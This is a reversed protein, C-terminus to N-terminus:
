RMSNGRKRSYSSIPSRIGIVQCACSFPSGQGPQQLRVVGAHAVQGQAVQELQRGVIRSSRPARLLGVGVARDGGDQLSM